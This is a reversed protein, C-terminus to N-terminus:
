ACIDVNCGPMSNDVCLSYHSVIVTIIVVIGVVTIERVSESFDEASCEHGGLSERVCFFHKCCLPICAYMYVFMCECARVCVNVCGCVGASVGEKARESERV